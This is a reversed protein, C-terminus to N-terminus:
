KQKFYIFNSQTSFWAKKNKSRKQTSNVKKTHQVGNGENSQSTLARTRRGKPRQHGPLHNPQLALQTAGLLRLSIQIPDLTNHPQVGFRQPENLPSPQTTLHESDHQVNPPPQQLLPLNPTAPAPAPAFLASHNRIRKSRNTSTSTSSNTTKPCLRSVSPNTQPRTSGLQNNPQIFRRRRFSSHQTTSTTSGTPDSKTAQIQLHKM